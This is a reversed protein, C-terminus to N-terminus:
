LSWSTLRFFARCSWTRRPPTWSLSTDGCTGRQVVFVSSVGGPPAWLLLGEPARAWLLLKQLKVVNVQDTFCSSTQFRTVHWNCAGSPPPTVIGWLQLDTPGPSTNWGFSVHLSLDSPVHFMQDFQPSLKLEVAGCSSLLRWQVSSM